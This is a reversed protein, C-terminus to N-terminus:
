LDGVKLLTFQVVSPLICLARAFKEFTEEDAPSPLDKFSTPREEVRTVAKTAV